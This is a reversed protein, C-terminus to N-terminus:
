SCTINVFTAITITHVRLHNGVTVAGFLPYRQKFCSRLCKVQKVVRVPLGLAKCTHRIGELAIFDFHKVLTETYEKRRELANASVAILM